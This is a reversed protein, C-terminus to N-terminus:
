SSKYCLLQRSLIKYKVSSLKLAKNISQRLDERALSLCFVTHPLAEKIKCATQLVVPLISSIEQKRSLPLLTVLIDQDSLKLFQRAKVKSEELPCIDVLPHGLYVSSIGRKRYFEDEEPFNFYSYGENQLYIENGKHAKGYGM